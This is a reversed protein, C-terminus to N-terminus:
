ELTRDIAVFRAWDRECPVVRGAATRLLVLRSAAAGGTLVDGERVGRGSCHQRLTEFLIREVRIREGPRLGALSGHREDM